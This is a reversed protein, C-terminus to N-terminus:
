ATAPAPPTADGPEQVVPTEAVAPVEHVTGIPDTPVSALGQYMALEAEMLSQGFPGPDAPPLAAPETQVAAANALQAAAIAEGSLPLEAVTPLISVFVPEKQILTALFGPSVNRLELTVEHAVLGEPIPDAGHLRFAKPGLTEGHAFNM